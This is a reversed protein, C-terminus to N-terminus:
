EFDAMEEAGTYEAAGLLEVDAGLMEGPNSGLMEGPNSGLMEGANNGTYQAEGATEQFDGMYTQDTIGLIAKEEAPLADIARGISEADEAGSLLPAKPILNKTISFGGVGLAGLGARHIFRNKALKPISVVLAGVSIPVLAKLYPNKIPMVGGLFSGLIGGLIIGSVDTAVGLPDFGKNEGHMYKAHHRARRHAGEFGYRAVHRM